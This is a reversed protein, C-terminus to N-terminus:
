LARVMAKHPIGAEMYEDSTVAFGLKEYFPVAHTQASLIAKAAGRARAEDVLAAIVADGVGKGRMGELVAMREIKVVGPEMARLRATAAPKGDARAFFHTAEKDYADWEEEASVGQEFVFVQMRIAMCIAFDAESEVKTVVIHV